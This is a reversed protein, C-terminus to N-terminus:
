LHCIDDNTEMECLIVPIILIMPTVKIQTNAESEVNQLYAWCNLHGVLSTTDLGELDAEM